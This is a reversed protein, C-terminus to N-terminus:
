GKVRLSKLRMTPAMPTQADMINPTSSSFLLCNYPSISATSQYFDPFLVFPEITGNLKPKRVRVYDKGIPEWNTRIFDNITQTLSIAEAHGKRFASAALHLAMLATNLPSACHTNVSKEEKADKAEEFYAMAEYIDADANQQNDTDASFQQPLNIKSLLRTTSM